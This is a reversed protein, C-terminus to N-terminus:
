TTTAATSSCAARGRRLPRRRRHVDPRRHRDKSAAARTARSSCRTASSSAARTARRSRPARARRALQVVRGARRGARPGPRPACTRPRPSRRPARGRDLRLRQLPPRRLRGDLPDVLDGPVRRGARRQRGAAVLHRLASRAARPLALIRQLMVPVVILATVATRRSTALAARPTSAAACSWRTAWRCARAPPERLGLRPLAARRRSRRARACRSASSCRRRGPRARRSRRRPTAGKPAGTTGSTLITVRGARGAAAGAARRDGARPGGAVPRAPPARRGGPWSGRPARPRRRPHAGALDEDVVLAAAGERRCVDTIQPAAFSPNLLVADAGLKAVGLLAEVFARGDRAVPGVRDGPGCGPSGALGRPSRTRRAPRGRRLDARGRRRGAADTRPPPDAGAAIATARRARGLARRGAGARAVKDPRMPAVLGARPSSGM